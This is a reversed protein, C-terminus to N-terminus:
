KARKRWLYSKLEAWRAASEPAAKLKRSSDMLFASLVAIVFGLVAGGIVILARKPKSKREPAIASDLVQIISPEKAEDLRAVEFQKALMEYLMQYYKVDRLLKINDLGARNKDGDVSPTEDTRGNQLRSLEARLSTLQESVRQFNPNSSTVFARMSNLEIEKASIQARLRAITEMVARSEVDVSIVGRTDIAGKLAVEANALNNKATELQREFFLRRQAAETVALTKTLDKLEDVYANAIAASRKSDRDEVEITILGNKEATIKTNKTLAKRAQEDFDVDYVKKLDFKALLRDAVTRSALMGVYLEGSNKLGAVGAAMSAVGGLQSLLAAAGSQNQQPPLLRTTAAYEDPIALSGAAVALTVGLTFSAIFKKHKALVILIDVLSISKEDMMEDEFTQADNM